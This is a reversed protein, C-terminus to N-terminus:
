SELRRERNSSERKSEATSSKKPRCSVEAIVRQAPFICREEGSRRNSQRSHRAARWHNNSRATDQTVANM